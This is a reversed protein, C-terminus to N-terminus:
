SASVLPVSACCWRRKVCKSVDGVNQAKSNVKAKYKMCLNIFAVIVNVLIM